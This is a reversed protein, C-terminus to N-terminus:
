RMYLHFLCLTFEFHRSDQSDLRRVSAALGDFTTDTAGNMAIKTDKLKPASSARQRAACPVYLSCKWALGPAFTGLFVLECGQGNARVRIDCEDWM